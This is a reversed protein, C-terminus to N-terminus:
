PKTLGITTRGFYIVSRGTEPFSADKSKYLGLKSYQGTDGAWMTPRNKRPYVNVGDVWIELWGTSDPAFRVGWVLDIWRNHNQMVRNGSADTLQWLKISEFNSLSQNQGGYVYMTAWQPTSAGNWRLGLAGFGSGGPHMGWLATFTNSGGHAWEFKETANYPLYLRTSFWREDGVSVGSKNFTEQATSSAESKQVSPDVPWGPDSDRIEFRAAPESSGPPSAVKVRGDTTGARPGAQTLDVFGPSSYSFLSAWPSGFTGNQYDAVFYPSSTAAPPSSATLTVNKRDDFCTRVTGQVSCVGLAYSGPTVNLVVDYPASTDTKLKNSVGGVPTAWFEVSDPAPTVTASWTAGTQVTQGDAISSTWTPTAPPACASTSVSMSATPSSNGAADRAVVGFAYSTACALGTQGASTSTVTTMKTGNRYVDYGTVGTNDSSANWTLSLGTATVNSAALGTPANPPTTDACTTTSVMVATQTSRNGAADYADVALTYNTNCTLGALVANTTSSTGASTGGRYLGYGSVGVNDSSPNWTLAISTATRNTTVVNTPASPPQTDACASTSAVVSARTSRNGAADYAEVEVTYGTGCTLGSVTAGPQVSTGNPTGNVLTRYGTVAVNDSSPSWTLSLSTRTAGSVTLGTPQSPPTTDAPPSPAPPPPTPTACAATAASARAPQSANGAADRAVVEYQYTTGCELGSQSSNTSTVSAVKSSNRYVDYATVGVNDTSASWQLTLSTQTVNSVALAGPVSPPTTDPTPAPPAPPASTCADTGATLDAAASRNGAADYADVGIAYSKDCELGALTANTQTVSMRPVGGVLVRYGAVGVDDSSGTWGLLLSTQTKATLALNSPATPANSDGCASTAVYATGLLSRNGAADVADVLYSYTSGCALGSLAVTPDSVAAVRSTGQFVGYGVVGVNDTSPSWSLVVATPTTVLQKFGAPTSPPQTDPCAATAVLATVRPSRNGSRDYASVSLASSQGCGLGSVIYSAASVTKKGTDGYVYYGAVEVDDQAPQWAVYVATPTANVVHVDTPATPPVQDRPGSNRGEAPGVVCVTLLAVISVAALATRKAAASM